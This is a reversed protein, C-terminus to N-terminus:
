HFHAEIQRAKEGKILHKGLIMVHVKILVFHWFLTKLLEVHHLLM